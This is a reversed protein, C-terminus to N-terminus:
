PIARACGDWRISCSTRSAQWNERVTIRLPDPPQNQGIISLTRVLDDITMLRHQMPAGLLGRKAADSQMIRQQAWDITPRAMWGIGRGAPGLIPDIAAGVQGLVESGLWRGGISNAVGGVSTSLGRQSTPVDVARALTALDRVNQVQPGAITDLARPDTREVFQAFKNASQAQNAGLTEDIKSQLYNGFVRSQRPDGATETAFTQLRDPNNRGGELLYNYAAAPEKEFPALRDALGGEGEVGRTFQQVQNFEGRPVGAQQATDAMADTAPEYLERARPQNGQDFSRGLDTRWGKLARMPSRRTGCRHDALWGAHAAHDTAILQNEIRFALSNRMPVTANPSNM